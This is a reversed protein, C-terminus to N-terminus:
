YTRSAKELRRKFREAAAFSSNKKRTAIDALELAQDRETNAKLIAIEAAKQAQIAARREKEAENKQYKAQALEHEVDAM